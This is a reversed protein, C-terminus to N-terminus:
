SKGTPCTERKADSGPDYPPMPLGPCQCIFPLDTSVQERWEKRSMNRTLKSCLLDPWLIPGPWLRLTTDKSGSVIHTGDPSFAVSTVGKEHGQLPTGIPQASKADWLRLMKDSS